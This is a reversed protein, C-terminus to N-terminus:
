LWGDQAYASPNVAPCLRRLALTETDNRVIDAAFGLLALQQLIVKQNTENDEAVRILRGQALADGRLPIVFKHEGQGANPTEKEPQALGAAIGTTM